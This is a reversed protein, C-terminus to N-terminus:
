SAAGRTATSLVRGTASPGSRPGTPASRPRRRRRRREIASSRPAAYDFSRLMGAVDRWCRTPCRAARGAAQGARGRLRAAELGSAHAADPRPTPRRPHAPRSAPRADACRRRLAARLGDAYAALQPCRSSRTARPTRADRRRARGARGARRQRPRRVHEALYAHVEALPSASGPPRPRRLRRRGRRRAPRGRRLPRARQRPGAGLRRDGTRLFQQLMALQRHGADRRRRGRRGGLRLARRVHDSGARDLADHIEIDPNVGPTVRRFVKMLSDDGFAVSTNRSSAASVCRRTRRCRRARPGPLRHFRLRREEVTTRPHRPAVRRAAVAADRGTTSPTTSGAHPRRRRRGARRRPRPRASRAARARLALPVQYLEARRRGRRVCSRAPEVGVTSGAPRGARGACASGACAPRPGQRRVLAPRRVLRAPRARHSPDPVATDPIVIEAVHTARTPSPPLRFWYFGHAASPSCTPCSASTPSVARRRAARGAALGGLQRLDLEVPQPFRSLNNVCLSRRRGGYSACSPCCARTALRRPRRVYGLGFAPHQKRVAHIM